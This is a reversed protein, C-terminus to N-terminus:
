TLSGVQPLHMLRSGIYAVTGLGSHHSMHRFLGNGTGVNYVGSSSLVFWGSASTYSGDTIYTTASGETAIPMMVWSWETDHGFASIISGSSQNVNFSLQRYNTATDSTYDAPNISVYPTLGNFVCGDILDYINGWLNEMNRYKVSVNAATANSSGSHWPVSNTGGNAIIGGSSVNGQGIVTQSDWHAAEIIYLLRLTAFITHDWTHYGTGKLRHNTRFTSLSTNVLPSGTGISRFGTTSEFAGIYVVDREGIGDGRDMHAPSVFWGDSLNGSPDYDSIFFDTYVPNEYDIKAYFKPIEVMVDGSVPTYTFGPDGEYATVVGNDLNCLKIDKYVAAWDFNSFGPTTGNTARFIKGKSNELREMAPDPQTKHWRSGYIAHSEYEFEKPPLYMSRSGLNAASNTALQELSARFLGNNAAAGTGYMGGSAMMSWGTAASNVIDTVFTTGSGGTATPLMAWSYASDHGFATIFGGTVAGIKNYSLQTYNTASGSAFTSPNINIYPILGNFNIGDVIQLLNGWLNEINRYKVGRNTGTPNASGSHWPVDNTDGRNIVASGSVGNGIIAQSNWNAVEIIYLLCVTWYSAFDWQHWNDGLGRHGIRFNAITTSVLSPGEGISGFAGGSTFAGIYVYDREGYGDGRDMHAPSVFWDADVKIDSILFDTTSAGSHDIKCYFKPIEVMVVDNAGTPTLTFGPEGEYAVINGDFSMVCIRIDKYIPELDFDSSGSTSGASAQFIKGASDELRDMQPNPLTKYWRSGFIKYKRRPERGAGRRTIFMNPTM